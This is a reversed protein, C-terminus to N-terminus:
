LECLCMLMYIYNDLLSSVHDNIDDMIRHLTKLQGYKSQTEHSLGHIVGNKFVIDGATSMEDYSIICKIVSREDYLYSGNPSRLTMLKARFLIISDEQFGIDMKFNEALINITRSTPLAPLANTLAQYGSRSTSQLTKMAFSLIIGPVMQTKGRKGGNKDRGRLFIRSEHEYMALAFDKADPTIIDSKDYYASIVQKGLSIYQEFIALNKGSVCVKGLQTRLEM